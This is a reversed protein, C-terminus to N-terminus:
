QWSPRVLAIRVELRALGVHTYPYDIDSFAGPKIGQSELFSDTLGRINRAFNPADALKLLIVLDRTNAPAYQQTHMRASILEGPVDFQPLISPAIRVSTPVPYFSLWERLRDAAETVLNKPALQCEYHPHGVYAVDALKRGLWRTSDLLAAM